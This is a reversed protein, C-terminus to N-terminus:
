GIEGERGDGAEGADGRWVWGPPIMRGEGDRSWGEQLKQANDHREIAEIKSMISQAVEEFPRDPPGKHRGRRGDYGRRKQERWKLFRLALDADFPIPPPACDPTAAGTGEDDREGEDAEGDGAPANGMTALRFELAVEAEELAEEMRQRFGPWERRRTWITGASIGAARAAAAVNGCQRLVALVLTETSKCWKGKRAAVIMARGHPGRKITQREADDVGDFCDRAGTLLRASAAKAAVCDIAFQADRRRRQDATSRDIGVAKAAATWNGTRGYSELFAARRPATFRLIKRRRPTKDQEM